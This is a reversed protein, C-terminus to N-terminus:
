GKVLDGVYAAIDKPWAKALGNLRALEGAFLARVAEEYGPLNGALTTMVRYAAEQAQRTADAAGSQRRADEVLRRLTASAGGPQTALWDWHRPLLTVERATVGLKPRGRAPKSPGAQPSVRAVAEDASGRLDLDVTQGTADNFVTPQVDILGHVARAVQALDGRAVLRQEAFATFRAPADGSTEAPPIM